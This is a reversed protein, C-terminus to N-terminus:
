LQLPGITREPRPLVRFPNSLLQDRVDTKVRLDGGWLPSNDVADTAQASIFFGLLPKDKKWPQRKKFLLPGSLSAELQNFAYKDM